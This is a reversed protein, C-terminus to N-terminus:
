AAAIRCVYSGYITNYFAIVFIVLKANKMPIM